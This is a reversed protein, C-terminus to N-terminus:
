SLSPVLVAAANCTMRHVHGRGSCPRTHLCFAVAVAPQYGTSPEDQVRVSTTSAPGAWCWSVWGHRCAHGHGHSSCNTVPLYPPREGLGRAGPGGRGLRGGMAAMGADRTGRARRERPSAARLGKCVGVGKLSSHEHRRRCTAVWSSTGLGLGAASEVWLSGHQQQPAAPCLPSPREGPQWGRRQSAM